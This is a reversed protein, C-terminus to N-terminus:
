DSNNILLYVMTDNLVLSSLAFYLVYYSLNYCYRLIVTLPPSIMRQLPEQLVMWTAQKTNERIPYGELLQM